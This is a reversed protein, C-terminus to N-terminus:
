VLQPAGVDATSRQSGPPPAQPESVDALGLASLVMATWESDPLAASNALWELGMGAGAALIFVAMSRLARSPQLGARDHLRGLVSSLTEVTRAHAEAYRRNLTPERAALVRFEILLRAWGQQMMGDRAAVRLLEQVGEAGAMEAAIRENQAAREEIRRELLALFLDAKSGFQSYVVGKSFGAEDAIAELTAGAYGRELFVRRAAALL